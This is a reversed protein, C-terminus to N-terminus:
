IPSNAMIQVAVQSGAAVDGEGCPLVIFANAKVLSVINSSDQDGTPTVKYGGDEITLTGRVFHCRRASATGGKEKQVNATLTAYITPRFLSSSGQAYLLAPRVFQDFTVMASVPNGPLGFVPVQTTEGKVAISISGFALPKGPKMAVKWFKMTGGLDAIVEKVFDYDGVSVGGSIVIFDVDAATKLKHTLDDRTDKAIGLAVPIGGAEAVQASLGYGNSNYIQHAGKPEHLEVLEDGTSLIAVRPRRFVPIQAIGITAMLAIEYARILVGRQLVLAGCAIVEARPRIYDGKEALGYVSVIEKDQSTDEIKLVADAGEPIPAGTMIKSATGTVVKKQPMTGAPINEIVMLRCPMDHSAGKTDGSVVAYGDMASRDWPPDDIGSVIDESLYRGLSLVLPVAEIELLRTEALIIKQAADVSLM